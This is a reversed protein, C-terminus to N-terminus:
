QDHRLGTKHPIFVVVFLVCQLENGTPLFIVIYIQWGQIKGPFQCSRIQYSPRVQMWFYFLCVAHLNILYKWIPCQPHCEFVREVLDFWVDSYGIAVEVWSGRSPERLTAGGGGCDSGSAALSTRRVEPAEAPSRLMWLTRHKAGISWQGSDFSYHGSLSLTLLKWFQLWGVM